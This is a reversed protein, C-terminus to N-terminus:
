ACLGFEGASQKHCLLYCAPLGPMGAGAVDAAQLTSTHPSHPKRGHHQWVSGTAAAAGAPVGWQDDAAPCRCAAHLSYMTSACQITNNRCRKHYARASITSGWPPYDPQKPVAQRCCAHSSAGDAAAQLLLCSCPMTTGAAATHAACGSLCCVATVFHIVFNSLSGTRAPRRLTCCSSCSCHGQAARVLHQVDLGFVLRWSIELRQRRLSHCRAAADEAQLVAAVLHHSPVLAM